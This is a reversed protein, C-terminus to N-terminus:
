QANIVLLPPSIQLAPLSASDGPGRDKFAAPAIPLLVLQRYPHGIFRIPKQLQPRLGLVLQVAQGAREGIDM